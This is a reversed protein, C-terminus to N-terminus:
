LRIGRAAAKEVHASGVAKENVEGSPGTKLGGTQLRCRIAGIKRAPLQSRIENRTADLGGLKRGPAKIDDGHKVHDLM